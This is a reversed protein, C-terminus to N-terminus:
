LHYAVQLPVTFVFEGSDISWRRFEKVGAVTKVTVVARGVIFCQEGIFCRCCCRFCAPMCDILCGFLALCQLRDLTSIFCSFQVAFLLQGAEQEVKTDDVCSIIVAFLLNWADCEAVIPSLVPASVITTSPKCASCSATNINACIKYKFCSYIELPVDPPPHSHSHRPLIHVPTDPPPRSHFPTDPIHIFRLLMFM